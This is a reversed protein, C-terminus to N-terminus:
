AASAGQASFQSPDLYMLKLELEGTKLHFGAALVNTHDGEKFAVPLNVVRQMGDATALLPVDNGAEMEKAIRSLVAAMQKKFTSFALKGRRESIDMSLTVETRSNDALTLSPLRVRKGEELDRYCRKANNRSNDFFVLKLFNGLVSVMENGSLSQPSVDSM